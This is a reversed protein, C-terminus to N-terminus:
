QLPLLGPVPGLAETYPSPIWLLYILPLIFFFVAMIAQQRVQPDLSFLTLIGMNAFHGYVTLVYAM